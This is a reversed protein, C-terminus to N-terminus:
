WCNLKVDYYGPYNILQLVLYLAVFSFFQTLMISILYIVAM